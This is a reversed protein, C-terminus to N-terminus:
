GKASNAIKGGTNIFKNYVDKVYTVQMETDALADHVLGALKYESFVLGVKKGLYRLPRMCFEQRYSWPCKIKCANFANRLIVLDFTAGNAWMGNKDGLNEKVFTQLEQLAINLAIPEPTFLADQAEKSQKLWWMATKLQMTRNFESNSEAIVNWKQKKIEDGDFTFAMVGISIIAADPGTGLTEIDVMIDM